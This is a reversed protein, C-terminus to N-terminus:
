SIGWEGKVMARAMFVELRLNWLSRSLRVLPEVVLRVVVGAPWVEVAERAAVESGGDLREWRELVAGVVVVALGLVSLGFAAWGLGEVLVEERGELTRM